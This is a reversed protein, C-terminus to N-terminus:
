YARPAGLGMIERAEAPTAIARGIEKALRVAREVLQANSTALEGKAYYVNDELGVRINHGLALSFAAVPFQVPGIGIVGLVANDPLLRAFQMILEPTSLTGIGNVLLQFWYPKSVPEYAKLMNYFVRLDNIGSCEFEPKVDYKECVKIAEVADQWAMLYASETYKEPRPCPIGEPRAPQVKKTFSTFLDISTVEPRAPVSALSLDTYKGSELPRWYRGGMSTNNIIIDPCKERVRQNVELYEEWSQSMSGLDDPKRRHIHVMSAGANYADYVQQVQEDVTEPLNPNAEKGHIGGTIACTIIAPAFAQAGGKALMQSYKLTNNYDGITYNSLAM